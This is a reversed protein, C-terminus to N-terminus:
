KATKNNNSKIKKKKKKEKEEEEEELEVGTRPLSKVNRPGGSLRCLAAGNAAVDPSDFLHQYKM